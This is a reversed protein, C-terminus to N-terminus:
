RDRHVIRVTVQMDHDVEDDHFYSGSVPSVDDPDAGVAATLHHHDCFLGNTPDMGIWGAGPLYVEVWAHLAGEARKEADGPECLYGSAFRAALGLGRLSEVAVVAFDRCAASGLALTEASSRAPGEDRREYRLNEHLSRNLEVLTEVTPRSRTPAGWFPLIPAASTAFYPALGRTEGATYYLPLELARRDLLFGFPNKERVELRLRLKAELRRAPAPYFVSAVENDFLDRQWSVVADRNTRFAFSKPLVSREIKPLLRFLHPSFTVPREYRYLAAYRIEIKVHRTRHRHGPAYEPVAPARTWRPRLCSGARCRDRRTHAICGIKSPGM